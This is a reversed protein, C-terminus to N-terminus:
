LMVKVVGIISITVHYNDTCRDRRGSLSDGSLQAPSNEDRGGEFPGLPSTVSLCCASQLSTKLRIVFISIIM